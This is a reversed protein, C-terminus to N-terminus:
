LLYRVNLERAIKGTDIGTQKYIFSSNRAIVTLWRLRSLSNILGDAINIFPLIAISPKDATKVTSLVESAGSSESMSAETNIAEGVFRFGRRV